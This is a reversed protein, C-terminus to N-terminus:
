EINRQRISGYSRFVRKSVANLELGIHELADAAYDVMGEILMAFVEASTKAAGDERFRQVAIDFGHLQTYRITILIEKSLVFGLPTPGPEGEHAIVPMSLYIMGDEVGLRSSSEIEDLEARTPVRIHWDSQVRTVDEETPNFLDIWLPKDNTPCTSLM